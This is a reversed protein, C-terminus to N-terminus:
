RVGGENLSMILIPPVFLAVAGLFLGAPSDEFRDLASLIRRMMPIDGQPYPRPDPHRNGPM